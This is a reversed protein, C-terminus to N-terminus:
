EALQEIDDAPRLPVMVSGAAAVAAAIGLPLWPGVPFLMLASLGAGGAAGSWQRALVSYSAARMRAQASSASSMLMTNASPYFASVGIGLLIAGVVWAVATANFAAWLALASAGAVAGISM